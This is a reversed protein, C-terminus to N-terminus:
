PFLLTHGTPLDAQHQPPCSAKHTTINESPDRVTTRLPAHDPILDFTELKAMSLTTTMKYFASNSVLSSTILFGLGIGTTLNSKRKRRSNSYQHIDQMSVSQPHCAPTDPTRCYIIELPPMDLGIPSNHLNGLVNQLTQHNKFAKCM